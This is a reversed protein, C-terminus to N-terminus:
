LAQHTSNICVLAQLQTAKDKNCIFDELCLPQYIDAWAYEKQAENMVEIDNRPRAAASVRERLPKEENYENSIKMTEKREISEEVLSTESNKPSANVTSCMSPKIATFLEPQHNKEYEKTRSGLCSSWERVKFGSFFTSISTWTAASNNSEHGPTNPIPHKRVITSPYTLGRIYYPSYKSVREDDIEDKYYDELSIQGVTKNHKVVNEAVLTENHVELSRETM